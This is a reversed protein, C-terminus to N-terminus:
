PVPLAHVTQLRHSAIPQSNETRCYTTACKRPQMGPHPMGAHRSNRGQEHRKLMSSSAYGEADRSHIHLARPDLRNCQIAIARDTSHAEHWQATNRKCEHHGEAAEVVIAGIAHGASVSSRRDQAQHAPKTTCRAPAACVVNHTNQNNHQVCTHVHTRAEPKQLSPSRHLGCEDKALKALIDLM